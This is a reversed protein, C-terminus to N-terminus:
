PSKWSTRGCLKQRKKVGGIGSARLNVFGRYSLELVIRKPMGGTHDYRISAGKSYLERGEVRSGCWSREEVPDQAFLAERRGGKKRGKGVVPIYHLTIFRARRGGRSFTLLLLVHAHPHLLVWVNVIHGLPQFSRFEEAFGMLLM